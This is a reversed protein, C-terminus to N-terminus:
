KLVEFEEDFNGFFKNSIKQFKKFNGEFNRLIKKRPAM